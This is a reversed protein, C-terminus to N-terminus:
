NTFIKIRFKGALCNHRFVIIVLFIKAKRIMMASKKANNQIKEGVSEKKYRCMTTFLKSWWTLKM